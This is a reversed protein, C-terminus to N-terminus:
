RKGASLNEGCYRCKIAAALITEACSPCAKTQPSAKAEPTDRLLAFGCNECHNRSTRRNVFVGCRPCKQFHERLVIGPVVGTEVADGLLSQCFPCKVANDDINKQCQPCRRNNGAAFSIALGFPGLLVGLGFWLCGNAGRSSAIFAAAIGCIIWILIFFEM